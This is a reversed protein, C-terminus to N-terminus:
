KFNLMCEFDSNKNQSLILAASNLALSIWDGRIKVDKNSTCFSFIEHWEDLRELLPLALARRSFMNCFTKLIVGVATLFQNSVVNSKLLLSIIDRNEVKLNDSMYKAAIPHFPLVRIINLAPLALKMPWQLMKFLVDFDEPSVVSQHYQPRNDLLKCLLEM